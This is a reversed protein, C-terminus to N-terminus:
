PESCRRGHRRRSAAVCRAARESAAAACLVAPPGLLLFPAVGVGGLGVRSAGLLGLALVASTGAAIGRAHREANLAPPTVLALGLYGGLLAILVALTAPAVRPVQAVFYASAAACGTVALITAANVRGGRTPTVAMAACGVAFRWRAGVGEVQALEASMARGWERREGPLAAAALGLLWKPRDTAPCSCVRALLLVAFAWPLGLMVALVALATM